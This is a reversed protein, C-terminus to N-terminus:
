ILNKSRIFFQGQEKIANKKYYIYTNEISQVGRDRQNQIEFLKNDIIKEDKM